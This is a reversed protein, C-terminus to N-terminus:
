LEINLRKKRKELSWKISAVIKDNLDIHKIADQVFKQEHDTFSEFDIYEWESPCIEFAKEPLMSLAIGTSINRLAFPLWSKTSKQNNESHFELWSQRIWSERVNLGNCFFDITETPFLRVYGDCPSVNSELLNLMYFSINMKPITVKKLEYIM